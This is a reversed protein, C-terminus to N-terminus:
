TINFFVTGTTNATFTLTLQYLKAEGVNIQQTTQNWVASAGILDTISATVNIAVNGNNTVAYNLIKQEGISVLGLDNLTTPQDVTFSKNTITAKIDQSYNTYAAVGLGLCAILLITTIATVTKNM